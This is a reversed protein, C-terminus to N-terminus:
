AELTQSSEGKQRIYLRRRQGDGTSYSELDAFEPTNAIFEHVVLRESASLFSFGYPQGSEAVKEAANRAMEQLQATRREKYDNINVLFKKDQDERAYAMYLVRQLATLCEGHYGIM